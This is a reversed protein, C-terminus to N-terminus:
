WGDLYWTALGGDSLNQWILDARNDGNVDVQGLHRQQAITVSTGAVVAQGERPLRSSNIDYALFITGAGTRTPPTPSHIFQSFSTVTWTCNAQTSVGIALAGSQPGVDFHTPWVTYTCPTAFRQLALDVNI